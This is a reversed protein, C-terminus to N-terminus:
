TQSLLDLYKRAAIKPALDAARRRLATPYVPASLAADMARSPADADGVPVLRGCRGNEFIQALGYPCDTAVVPLEFTLAKILAVALGKFNSSLTM